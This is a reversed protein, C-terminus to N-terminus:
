AKKRRKPGMPVATDTDVFGPRPIATRRRKPRGPQASEENVFSASDSLNVSQSIDGLPVRPMSASPNPGSASAPPTSSLVNPGATAPLLQSPYSTVTAISKSPNRASRRIPQSGIRTAGDELTGGGNRSDSESLDADDSEDDLEPDAESKSDAIFEVSKVTKKPDTKKATKKAAATKEATIGAQTTKKDKRVKRKMPIVTGAEVGNQFKKAREQVEQESLRKFSCSGEILSDRLELLPPLSDSLHSPNIFPVPWGIVDVKYRVGIVEYFHEYNMQINPNNTIKVIINDSILQL